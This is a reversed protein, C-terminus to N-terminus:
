ISCFQESELLDIMGSIAELRSKAVELMLRVVQYLHGSNGEGMTANTNNISEIVHIARMIRYRVLEYTGIIGNQGTLVSNGITLRCSQIVAPNELAYSIQSSIWDYLLALMSSLEMSRSMCTPCGSIRKQVQEVTWSVQLVADLRLLSSKESGAIYMLLQSKSLLQPWCTTCLEDRLHHSGMPQKAIDAITAMISNIEMDVETLHSSTDDTDRGTITYLGLPSTSSHCLTGEGSLDHKPRADGLGDSHLASEQSWEQQLSRPSTSSFGDANILLVDQLMLDDLGCASSPQTVDSSLCPTSTWPDQTLLAIDQCHPSYYVLDPLSPLVLDDNSSQLSNFPQDSYSAIDTQPKQDVSSLISAKSPKPKLCPRGARRAKSYICDLGRRRCRQCCPMEGSCKLKSRTCSDCCGRLRPPVM